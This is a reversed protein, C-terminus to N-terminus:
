NIANCGETPHEEKVSFVTMFQASKPRTQPVKLTLRRHCVTLTRAISAQTMAAKLLKSPHNVTRNRCVRLLVNGRKERPLVM